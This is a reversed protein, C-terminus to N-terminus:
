SALNLNLYQLLLQYNNQPPTYTMLERRIRQIERGRPIYPYNRPRETPRENAYPRNCGPCGSTIFPLGSEVVEELVGESVGYHTVQGVGNFKMWEYRSLGTNILYRAMQVRRYQGVPPRVWGSLYSGDEPYFSFLHTEAGLDHALQILKVAEEETEGLGVILHIGVRGRGMVEVGEEIGQLYRGWLHTGGAGRGRLAEFVRESACDIAIGLREAGAERLDRMDEERFLTPTILASTPIGVGRFVRRIVEVEAEVARPNTISAVCVRYPRLSCGSRIFGNLREIVDGLERLPWEVRILSRCIPASTVGRAQGCYLCNSKCGDSFHLLLNICFPFANRYFKGSSYGLVIDAATSVRVFDPSECVNRLGMVVVVYNNCLYTYLQKVTMFGLLYTFDSDFVLLSMSLPAASIFWGLSM